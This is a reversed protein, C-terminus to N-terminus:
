LNCLKLFNWFPLTEKAEPFLLVELVIKGEVVWTQGLGFYVSCHSCPKIPPDHSSRVSSKRFLQPDFRCEIKTSWSQVWDWFNWLGSMEAIQCLHASQSIKWDSDLGSGIFNFRIWDHDAFNKFIMLGIWDQDVWTFYHIKIRGWSALGGSFNNQRWGFIIPQLCFLQLFAKAEPPLISMAKQSKWLKVLCHRKQRM